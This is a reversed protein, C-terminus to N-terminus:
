SRAGLSICLWASINEYRSKLLHISVRANLWREKCTNKSTNATDYEKFILHLLCAPSPFQEDLMEDTLKSNTFYILALRANTHLTFYIPVHTCKSMTQFLAHYYITYLPSCQREPLILLRFRRQYMNISSEMAHHGQITAQRTNHTIIYFLWFAIFSSILGMFPIQLTVLRIENYQGYSIPGYEACYVHLYADALFIHAIFRQM